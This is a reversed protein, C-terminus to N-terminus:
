IRKVIHIHDNYYQLITHPITNSALWRFLWSRRKHACMRIFIGHRIFFSTYNLRKITTAGKNTIRCDASGFLAFLHVSHVKEGKQWQPFPCICLDPSTVQRASVCSLVHVYKYGACMILSWNSKVPTV